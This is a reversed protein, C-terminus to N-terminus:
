HNITELICYTIVAISLLGLIFVTLMIGDGPFLLPIQATALAIVGNIVKKVKM